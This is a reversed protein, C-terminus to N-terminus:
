FLAARTTIGGTIEFGDGGINDAIIKLSEAISALTEAKVLELRDKEERTM